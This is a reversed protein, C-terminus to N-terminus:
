VTTYRYFNLQRRVSRVDEIGFVQAPALSENYGGAAGRFYGDRYISLYATNLLM